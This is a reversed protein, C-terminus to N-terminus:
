SFVESCGSEVIKLEAFDPLGQQRLACLASSAASVSRDVEVSNIGLAPCDFKLSEAASGCFQVFKGTVTDEVIVFPLSSKPRQLMREIAADIQEAAESLKM